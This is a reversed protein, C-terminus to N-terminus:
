WPNQRVDLKLVKASVDINVDILLLETSSSSSSSARSPYEFYM